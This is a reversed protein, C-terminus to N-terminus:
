QILYIHSIIPIPLKKSKKGDNIILKTEGRGSSKNIWETSHLKVEGGDQIIQM